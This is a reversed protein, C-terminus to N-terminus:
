GYKYDYIKRPEKKKPIFNSLLAAMTLIQPASRPIKFTPLVPSPFSSLLERNKHTIEKYAKLNRGVIQAGSPGGLHPDAPPAWSGQKSATDSIKYSSTRYGDIITIGNQLISAELNGLYQGVNVWYDVVFSLTTLEWALSPRLTLGLQWQNFLTLDSIRYKCGLEYRYLGEQSHAVKDYLDFWTKQEYSSGRAKVVGVFDMHPQTQLSTFHNFLNQLDQLFPKWGVHWGLWGSAVTGRPDKKLARSLDQTAKYLTRYKETRFKQAISNLMRLTERGEGVSTDLSVESQRIGDYFKSLAKNYATNQALVSPAVQPIVDSYAFGFCGRHQFPVPRWTSPPEEALRGWQVYDETGYVASDVTKTFSIPSPKRLPGGSNKAPSPSVVFSKKLSSRTSRNTGNEYWEEFIGDEKSNNSEMAM